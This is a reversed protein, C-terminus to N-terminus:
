IPDNVSIVYSKHSGERVEGYIEMNNIWSSDIETM